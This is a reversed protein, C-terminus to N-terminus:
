NIDYAFRMVRHNEYDVVFIQGESGIEIGIPLRFSQIDQGFQGFTALLQGETDYVIVRYNEPDTVFIRGQHDVALYPKNIANESDWGDKVEWQWLPNFNPDFKQIRQNWIDAVYINGEIDFALGVPEEFRGPVIGGGGWAQVFNGDADFKQIRKNGTDAVYVFGDKDVIIDRPGWFAGPAANVDDETTGFQGFQTILKGMTDFVLIRHSWTDAVYVRGSDSVALGWIEFLQGQPIADWLDSGWTRLFQGTEDFVQIRRNGSDAVYLAGQPSLTLVHPYQFQGQGTGTTGWVLDSSLNITVSEYIDPEPPTIVVPGSQYDWMQNLIDKRVYFYMRTVFPWENSQHRLHRRYFFINWLSEWNSKIEAHPDAATSNPDPSIYNHWVTQLTQNKYDEIPWWVQRYRFREYDDGLYPEVDELAVDADPSLLVVPADLNRRNPASGFFSRNPYQRMYWEMPWIVGGYAVKIQKDGVTRRSIDDIQNLVQKVDPTGHAYVMFENVYDYNVFAALWSFRITLLAMLSFSIIFLMPKIRGRGLRTGYWWLGFGIGIIAVLALIFKSTESVENLSQGQFPNATILVLFASLLLPVLGLFALGYSTTLSRWDFRQLVTQSVHGMLFIFPLIIHVTLWPMKEGAWSFIVFSCICWYILFAVYTGGDSPYFQPQDDAENQLQGQKKRGTKSGTPSGLRPKIEDKTQDLNSAVTPPAKKILYFIIAGLGMMVPLFEYLPLLILYYYGPQSGRNVGHQSLWYELTGWISSIFGDPNTFFTTYLLFFVVLSLAVPGLLLTFTAKLNSLSAILSTLPKNKRDANRALTLIGILIGGAMFLLGGLSRGEGIEIGASSLAFLPLLLVLLGMVVRQVNKTSLNEWMLMALIFTLGIFGQIYGVAKVALSLSVAMSGVYLWSQQRTRMYQFLSLVMLAMFLALFAENRIYRHYYLLFPSILLGFSTVLAGIQGMWPRFWYPLIVLIIGCIAAPIRAAFDNDGFLLYSLAVVHFQFPGHMLPDHRYGEGYYLKYSYLAHLSEDHSMVREGLGYFRTVLALCLFTAYLVLEWNINLTIFLPKSLFSQNQQQPNITM